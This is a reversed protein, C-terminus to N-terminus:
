HGHLPKPSERIIARPSSCSGHFTADECVGVEDVAVLRGSRVRRHHDFALVDAVDAAARRERQAGVVPHDVQRAAGEHGPEDEAVVVPGEEVVVGALCGGQTQLV